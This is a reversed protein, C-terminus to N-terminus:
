GQLWKVYVCGIDLLLCRYEGTFAGGIFSLRYTPPQQTICHQFALWDASVNMSDCHVPVTKSVSRTTYYTSCSEVDTM